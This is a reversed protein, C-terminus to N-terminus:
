IFYFWVLGFYGIFHQCVDFSLNFTQFGYRDLKLSCKETHLENGVIIFEGQFIIVSRRASSPVTPQRLSGLNIWQDIHNPNYRSIIESGFVYFAGNFQITPAFEVGNENNTRWPYSKGSQWTWTKLDLLETQVKYPGQFGMAGGWGGVPTIIEGGTVFLLGKINKLYVVFTAKNFM